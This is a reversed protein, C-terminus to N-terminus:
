LRRVGDRDQGEGEHTVRLDQRDVGLEALSPPQLEGILVVASCLLM